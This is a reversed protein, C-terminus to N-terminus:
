VKNHPHGCSYLHRNEDTIQPFQSQDAALYIHTVMSYNFKSVFNEQLGTDRRLLSILNNFHEIIKNVFLRVNITFTKDTEDYSVATTAQSNVLINGEALGSHYLGCRLTSYLTGLIGNETNSTIEPFVDSFGAIFFEKYKKSGGQKIKGVMEFYATVIALAAFGSDEHEEILRKAINLQWHLIADAFVNIRNDISSLDTSSDFNPSYSTVKISSPICNNM